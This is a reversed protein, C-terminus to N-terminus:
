SYYREFSSKDPLRSNLLNNIRSKIVEFSEDLEADNICVAYCKRNNLAKELRSLDYPFRSVYESHKSINFPESKGSWVQWQKFVYQNVDSMSRFKQRSTLDLAVGHNDWVEKLTTKLLPSPMHSTVVEPLRKFSIPLMIINKALARIGNRGSLLQKWRSLIAGKAEFATNVIANNNLLIHPFVDSMASSSLSGLMMQEQARGNNAFFFNSSIPRVVFTDDNFLIFRESLGEIRHLNLEIPHSSFTPLYDPPMFDKHKVINLKEHKLDLWSPVHGYTVFHIKRVWPMFKEIGRFIYQLNDWDRYRNISNDITSNDRSYKLKEKLWSPDTGDVWMVVIDITNATM